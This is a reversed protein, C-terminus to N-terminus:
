TKDRNEKLTFYKNREKLLKQHLSVQNYYLVRKINLIKRRGVSSSMKRSVFSSAEM